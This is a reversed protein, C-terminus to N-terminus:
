IVQLFVESFAYCTYNHKLKENISNHMTEVEVIYKKGLLPVSDNVIGRIVGQGQCDPNFKFIVRTGEPLQEIYWNEATREYITKM